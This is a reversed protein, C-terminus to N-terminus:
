AGRQQAGSHNGSCQLGAAVSTGAGPLWLGLMCSTIRPVARGVTGQWYFHAGVRPAASMDRCQLPKANCPARLRAPVYCASDLQAKPPSKALTIEKEISEVALVCFVSPSPKLTQVQWTISNNTDSLTCKLEGILCIRPYHCM